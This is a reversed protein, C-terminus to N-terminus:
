SRGGRYTISGSHSRRLTEKTTVAYFTCEQIVAMELGCLNFEQQASTRIYSFCWDKVTNETNSDFEALSDFLDVKNAVVIIPIETSHKSKTETIVKRLRELENVSEKKDLSYVLVFVDSRKIALKEMAPFAFEGTMDTFEVQITCYDEKFEKQYVDYVTPEGGFDAGEGVIKRVLSTKGVGEAGLM